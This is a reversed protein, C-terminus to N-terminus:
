CVCGEARWRLPPPPSVHTPLYCTISLPSHDSVLPLQDVALWFSSPRNTIALDLVSLGRTPVGHAQQVNLISLRQQNCFDFLLESKASSVVDGLRKDRCNFDGLVLLPRHGRGAEKVKDLVRKLTASPADPRVYVVGVRVAFSDALVVDVFVCMTGNRSFALADVGKNPMCNNVYCMIGSSQKTYPHNHCDFGSVKFSKKSDPSVKTECLGLFAAKPSKYLVTRLQKMKNTVSNINLFHLLSPQYNTM